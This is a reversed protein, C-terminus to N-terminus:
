LRFINDIDPHRFPLELGVAGRPENRRQGLTPNDKLHEWAAQWASAEDKFGEAAIPEWRVGDSQLVKLRVDWGCGRPWLVYRRDPYGNLSLGENEKLKEGRRLFIFVAGNLSVSRM